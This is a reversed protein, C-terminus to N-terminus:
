REIEFALKSDNLDRPAAGLAAVCTPRRAGHTSQVARRREKRTPQRV